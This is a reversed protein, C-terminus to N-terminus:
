EQDIKIPIVRTQEEELIPMEIRLIGRKYFAAVKNTNVNVPLVISRNFEGWFCEQSFYHQSDIEEPKKRLGNIVLIDDTISVSIDEITIGAIPALIVLKNQVQYVDVPIPAADEASQPTHESGIKKATFFSMPLSTLTKLTTVSTLTLYM